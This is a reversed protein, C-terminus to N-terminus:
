RRPQLRQALQLSRRRVWDIRRPRSAYLLQCLTNESLTGPEVTEPIWEAIAAVAWIHRLARQTVRAGAAHLRCYRERPVHQASAWLWSSLSIGDTSWSAGVSSAPGPTRPVRFVLRMAHEPADHDGIGRCFAMSYMPPMHSFPRSRKRSSRIFTGM